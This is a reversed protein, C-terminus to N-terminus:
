PTVSRARWTCGDQVAEARTARVPTPAVTSRWGTPGGPTFRGVATVMDPNHTRDCVMCVSM